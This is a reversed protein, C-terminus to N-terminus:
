LWREGDRITRVMIRQTTPDVLVSRGVHGGVDEARLPISADALAKKAASVNSGAIDRVFDSPLGPFMSAGGVIAAAFPATGGADHLLELLAPVASDAYKGLIDDDDSREPLMCHALAAVRQKPAFVIVAVCSGLGVSSLQETERAVGMRGMSVTVTRSHALSDPALRPAALHTM